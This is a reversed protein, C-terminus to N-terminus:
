KHPAPNTLLRTLYVGLKEKISARVNHSQTKEGVTGDRRLRRAKRSPRGGLQRLRAHKEPEPIAILLLKWIVHLWQKVNKPTLPVHLGVYRFESEYEGCPDQSEERLAAEKVLGIFDILRANVWTKTSFTKRGPAARLKLTHRKGLNFGDRMIKQVSRLDDAHAPFLCPFHPMEEAIERFPEPFEKALRHVSDTSLFALNVLQECAVRKEYSTLKKNSCCRQVREAVEQIYDHAKHAPLALIKGDRDPSFLLMIRQHERDFDTDM